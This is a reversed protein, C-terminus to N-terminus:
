GKTSGCVDRSQRVLTVRLAAFRGDSTSTGERPIRNVDNDWRALHDSFHVSAGTWSGFGPYHRSVRRRARCNVGAGDRDISSGDEM